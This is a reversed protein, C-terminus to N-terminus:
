PGGIGSGFPMPTLESTVYTSACPRVGLEARESASLDKTEVFRGPSFEFATGLEGALPPVVVQVPADPNRRHM